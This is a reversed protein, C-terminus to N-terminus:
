PAGRRRKQVTAIKKKSNAQAASGCEGQSKNSIVPDATTSLHRKYPTPRNRQETTVFSTACARVQDIQWPRPQTAPGDCFRQLIVCTSLQRPHKKPMEHMAHENLQRKHQTQKTPAHVTRVDGIAASACPAYLVVACIPAHLVFGSIANMTAWSYKTSKSQM